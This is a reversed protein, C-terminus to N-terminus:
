INVFTRLSIIDYFIRPRYGKPRWVKEIMTGQWKNVAKYLAGERFHVNKAEKVVKETNESLVEWMTGLIEYASNSLFATAISLHEDLIDGLPPV